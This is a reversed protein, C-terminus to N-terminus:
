WVSKKLVLAYAEDTISSLDLQRAAGFAHITDAQRYIDRDTTLFVDHDNLKSVGGELIEPKQRLDSVQLITTGHKESSILIIEPAFGGSGTLFKNSIKIHDDPGFADEFLTKNNAAIVKVTGDSISRLNDFQNIFIDTNDHGSFIQTAINSVM